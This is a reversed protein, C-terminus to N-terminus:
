LGKTEYAEPLLDFLPREPDRAVPEQQAFDLEMQLSPKAKAGPKPRRAPRYFRQRDAAREALEELVDGCSVLGGRRARAHYTRNRIM